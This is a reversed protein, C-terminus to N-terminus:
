LRTTMASKTSPYDIHATTEHVKATHFIGVVGHYVAVLCGDVGTHQAEDLFYTEGFKLMHLFAVRKDDDIIRLIPQRQGLCLGSQLSLLAAASATVALM